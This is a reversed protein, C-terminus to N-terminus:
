SLNKSGLNETDHEIGKAAAAYGVLACAGVACTVLTRDYIQLWRKYPAKLAPTSFAARQARVAVALIPTKRLCALMM